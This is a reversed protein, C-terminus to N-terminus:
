RPLVPQQGEGGHWDFRAIFVGCADKHRAYFFHTDAWIRLYAADEYSYKNIDGCNTREPIRLNLRTETGTKLDNVVLEVQRLDPRSLNSRAQKFLIKGQGAALPDFVDVNEWLPKGDSLRFGFNDVTWHEGGRTRSVWLVSEAVGWGPFSRTGNGAQSLRGEVQRKWLLGGGRKDYVAISLKRTGYEVSGHETFVVYLGGAVGGALGESGGGASTTGSLMLALFLPLVRLM